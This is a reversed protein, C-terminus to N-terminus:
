LTRQCADGDRQLVAYLDGAEVDGDAERRVGPFGVGFIPGHHPEEFVGASNWKDLCVQGGGQKGEFRCVIDPAACRIRM